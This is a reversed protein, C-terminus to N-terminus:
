QKGIWAGRIGIDREIMKQYQAADDKSSFGSVVVRHWTAGRVEASRIEAAIGSGKLKRIDVEADAQSAHSSVYVVWDGQPRTAPPTAVTTSPAAAPKAAPKAVAKAAPKTVTPGAPATAPKTPTAVPAATEGPIGAAALQAELESIRKQLPAVDPSKKRLQMMRAQLADFDRQLTATRDDAEMAMWVGAGGAALGIIAILLLIMLPARSASSAAPQAPMDAHTVSTQTTHTHAPASPAPHSSAPKATSAAAKPQKVESDTAPHATPQTAPEKNRKYEEPHELHAYQWSPHEKDPHPEGGTANFKPLQLKQTSEHSIGSDAPAAESAPPAAVPEPSTVVTQDVSIQQKPPTISVTKDGSIASDAIDDGSSVMSEPGLIVTKDSDFSDTGASSFTKEFDSEETATDNALEDLQQELKDDDIGEPEPQTTTEDPEGFTLDADGALMADVDLLPAQEEQAANLAGLDLRVTSESEDHFPNKDSDSM